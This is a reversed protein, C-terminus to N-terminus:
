ITGYTSVMITSAPNMPWDRAGRARPRGYSFPRHASLVFKNLARGIENVALDLRNWVDGNDKPRAKPFKGRAELARRRNLIRVNGMPGCGRDDTVFTAEHNTLRGAARNSSEGPTRVEIFAVIQLGDCEPHTHNAHQTDFDQHEGVGRATHICTKSRSIQHHDVIVDIQQAGIRERTWIVISEADPKGIQRIHIRRVQAPNGVVRASLQAHLQPMTDIGGAVPGRYSVGASTRYRLVMPASATPMDVTGSAMTARWMPTSTSPIEHMVFMAAPISDWGNFWSSTSSVAVRTRPVNMARNFPMM